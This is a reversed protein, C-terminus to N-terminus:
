PSVQAWREEVNPRILCVLQGGRLQEIADRVSGETAVYVSVNRAQLAAFAKPGIHDTVVADVDMAVINRAARIGADERLHANWTNDLTKLHSTDMDVVLFFLARGFRPDIRGALDPTRCTVAVRV